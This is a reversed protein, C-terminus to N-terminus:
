PSRPQSSTEKLARALLPLKLKASTTLCMCDPTELSHANLKVLIFMVYVPCNRRSELIRTRVKCEEHLGAPNTWLILIVEYVECRNGSSLTQHKRIRLTNSMSSESKLSEAYQADNKFTTLLGELNFLRTRFLTSTCPPPAYVLNEDESPDLPALEHAAKDGPRRKAYFCVKKKGPM